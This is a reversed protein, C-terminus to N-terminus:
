VEILVYEYDLSQSRIVISLHVPLVNMEHLVFLALLKLLYMKKVHKQIPIVVIGLVVNLMKQALEKSTIQNRLYKEYNSVIIKAERFLVAYLHHIKKDDGEM